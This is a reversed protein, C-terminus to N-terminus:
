GGSCYWLIYLTFCPNVIGECSSKTSENGCSNLSKSRHSDDVHDSGDLLDPEYFGLPHVLEFRSVSFVCVQTGIHLGQITEIGSLQRSTKDTDKHAMDDAEMVEDFGVRSTIGIM